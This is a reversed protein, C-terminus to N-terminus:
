HTSNINYVLISRPLSEIAKYCFLLKNEVSVQERLAKISPLYRSDPEFELDTKNLKYEFIPKKFKESIWQQIDFDTKVPNPIRDDFLNIRMQGSLEILYKGIESISTKNEFDNENLINDFYNSLTEKLWGKSEYILKTGFYLNILHPNDSEKDQYLDQFYKGM